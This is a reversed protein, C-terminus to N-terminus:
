GGATKELDDASGAASPPDPAAPTIGAPPGDPFCRQCPTLGNAVREQVMRDDKPIPRCFANLVSDIVGCVSRTYGKGTLPNPVFAAQHYRKGAHTFVVYEPMIEM